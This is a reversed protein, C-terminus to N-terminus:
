KKYRIRDSLRHCTDTRAHTHTHTHGAYVLWTQLYQRDVNTILSRTQGTFLGLRSELGLPAEPRRNIIM